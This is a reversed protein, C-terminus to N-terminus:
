GSLGSNLALSIIQGMKFKEKRNKVIDPEFGTLPTIAWLAPIVLIFATIALIGLGLRWGTSNILPLVLLPMIFQGAPHGLATFGLAKGRNIDFHRAIGTSSTHTMLGQGFWRVLLLGTM